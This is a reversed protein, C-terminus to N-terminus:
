RRPHRLSFRAPVIDLSAITSAPSLSAPDAIHATSKVYDALSLKEHPDFGKLVRCLKLVRDPTVTM